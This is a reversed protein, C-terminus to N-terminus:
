NLKQKPERMMHFLAGSAATRAGFYQILLFRVNAAAAAAASEPRHNERSPSVMWCSFPLDAGRSSSKDKKPKTHSHSITHSFSKDDRRPDERVTDPTEHKSLISRSWSRRQFSVSRSPRHTSPVSQSEIATPTSTCTSRPSSRKRICCAPCM